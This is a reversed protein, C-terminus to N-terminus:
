YVTSKYMIIYASRMFSIQFAGLFFVCSSYRKSHHYWRVLLISEWNFHFDIWDILRVSDGNKSTSLQHNILSNFQSEAVMVMSVRNPPLLLLLSNVTSKAYKENLVCIVHYLYSLILVSAIEVFAETIHFKMTHNFTLLILVMYLNYCSVDDGFCRFYFIGLSDNIHM